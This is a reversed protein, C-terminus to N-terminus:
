TAQMMPLQAKGLIPVALALPLFNTSSSARQGPPRQYSQWQSQWRLRKFLTKQSM